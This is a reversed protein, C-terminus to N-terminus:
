SENLYEGTKVEFSRNVNFEELLHLSLPYDPYNELIKVLVFKGTGCAGYVLGRQATIIAERDSLDKFANEDLPMIKLIKYKNL